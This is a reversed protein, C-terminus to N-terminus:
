QQKSINLNLQITGVMGAIPPTGPFYDDIEAAFEKTVKFALEGSSIQGNQIPFHYAAGSTITFVPHRGAYVGNVLVLATIKAASSDTSEVALRQLTVTTGNQSFTIGGNSQIESSGNSKDIVGGEVAFQESASGSVEDAIYTTQINSSSLQQKFSQNFALTLSGENVQATQASAFSSVALVSTLALTSTRLVNKLIM